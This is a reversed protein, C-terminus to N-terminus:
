DASPMVFIQGPFVLNPDRIQSENAEYIQKYRIGRGLMAHSIRWLSDGRVVTATRVEKVVTAGAPAEKAVEESSLRLRSPPQGVSLAALPLTAPSPIPFVFPVEARALVKGSAPEVGDARVMYNGPQMGKEIRLAWFGSVDAMVKALLAGNLYVRTQSGPPAVGTAIFSGGDESEVSKIAIAPAVKTLTDAPIAPAAKTAGFNPQVMSLGAPPASTLATAAPADGGKTPVVVAVSQSASAPQAGNSRLMLVHKGPPLAPPLFVVEGRADAVASALPADGDVLAITEGPSGRGAVVSEGSPKVSVIDFELRQKPEPKPASDRESAPGLSGGPSAISPGDGPQAPGM